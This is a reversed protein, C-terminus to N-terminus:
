GKLTRAKPASLILETLCRQKNAVAKVFARRDAWGRHAGSPVRPVPPCVQRDTKVAPVDDVFVDPVHLWVRCNGLPLDRWRRLCDDPRLVPRFEALGRAPDPFFMLGFNCIM